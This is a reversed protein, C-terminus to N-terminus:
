GRVDPGWGAEVERRRARLRDELAGLTTRQDAITREDVLRFLPDGIPALPLFAM